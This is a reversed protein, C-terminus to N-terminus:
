VVGATFRMEQYVPYILTETKFRRSSVKGWLQIIEVNFKWNELGTLYKCKESYKKLDYVSPYKRSIMLRPSFLM